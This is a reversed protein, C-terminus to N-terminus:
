LSLSRKNGAKYREGMEALQRDTRGDTQQMVITYGTSVASDISIGDPVTFPIPGLFRTYVLHPDLNLCLRLKTYSTRRATATAHQDTRAAAHWAVTVLMWTKNVSNTYGTPINFSSYSSFIFMTTRLFSLKEGFTLLGTATQRFAAATQSFTARTCIQFSRAFSIPQQLIESM